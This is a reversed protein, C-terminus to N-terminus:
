DDAHNQRSKPLLAPVQIATITDTPYQCTLENAQARVVPFPMETARFHM